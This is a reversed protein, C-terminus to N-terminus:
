GQAPPPQGELEAKTELFDRVTPPVHKEYLRTMAYEMEQEITTDKKYLFCALAEAQDDPVSITIQKKM